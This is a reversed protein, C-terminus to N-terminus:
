QAVKPKKLSPPALFKDAVYVEEKEADFDRLLAIKVNITEQGFNRVKAARTPESESKIRMISIVNGVDDLIGDIIVIAHDGEQLNFNVM